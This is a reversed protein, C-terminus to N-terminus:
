KNLLNLGTKEVFEPYGMPAQMVFNSNNDLIFAWTKGSPQDYVLKFVKAPVWVGTGIKQVEGGYLPGTFVYTPGGSRKVFSRTEAEIDAWKGRNLKPNQPIMNALSFSQAMASPTPMDGAPAMHGRDFGSNKYDDLRARDASPLRAEEYFRDTRHEDLADNLQAQTLKEVVFVPTKTQGSHLVAFADFCVERLQGVAVTIKPPTNDPFFQPCGSFQASAAQAFLLAVVLIFKKLTMAISVLNLSVMLVWLHLTTENLPSQNHGRM